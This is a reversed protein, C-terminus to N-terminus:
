CGEYIPIEDKLIAKKISPKLTEYEVLDVKRKLTKEIESKLKVFEFLGIEDKIEILLDIDSDKQEEKRSFSGFLGARTVGYRDFIPCANKRIQEINNRMTSLNYQISVM